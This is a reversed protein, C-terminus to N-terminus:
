VVTVYHSLYLVLLKLIGKKMHRLVQLLLNSLQCYFLNQNYAESAAVETELRPRCKVMKKWECFPAEYGYKHINLQLKSHRKFCLICTWLISIPVKSLLKIYIPVMLVREVLVCTFNDGFFDLRLGSIHVPLYAKKWKNIIVWFSPHLNHM